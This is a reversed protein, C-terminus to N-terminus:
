RSPTPPASALVNRWLAAFKRTVAGEAAEVVEGLDAQVEAGDMSITVPADVQIVQVAPPGGAKPGLDLAIPLAGGATLPRGLAAGSGSGLTGARVLDASRSTLDTTVSEERAKAAAAAEAATGGGQLTAAYAVKGADEAFRKIDAQVAAEAASGPKPTERIAEGARRAPTGSASIAAGTGSPTLNLRGGGRRAPRNLEALKAEAERVVRDSTAPDEIARKLRGLGQAQEATLKGKQKARYATEFRRIVDLAKVNRDRQAASEEVFADAEQIAADLGAQAQISRVKSLVNELYDDATAFAKAIAMGAAFAAAGLLGYPGLLAAVRAGMTALAINGAGVSDVFKYVAKAVDYVTRALEEIQAWVGAWDVEGLWQWLRQAAEGAYDLAAQIKGEILDRNADIWAVASEALDALAPLYRSVIRNVVGEVSAGLRYQADGLREAATATDRDFVLGLRQAEDGMKRLGATGAAVLPGFSRAADEGFLRGIVIARDQDNAGVKALADGVAGIQEEPRMAALDAAQIGLTKLTQEVEPPLKKALISNLKLSAATVKDISTGSLTAAHALRGYAEPGLPSKAATDAEGRVRSVAAGAGALGAGGLALGGLALGGAIRAAGGLARGARGADSRLGAAVGPARAALYGGVGRAGRGLAGAGAAAAVRASRAAESLKSVVPALARGAAEYERRVARIESPGLGAADLGRRIAKGANGAATEYVRTARQTVRTLTRGAADASAALRRNVGAAARAAVSEAARANKAASAALNRLARDAATVGRAPAAAIQGLRTEARRAAAPDVEPRLTLTEVAM